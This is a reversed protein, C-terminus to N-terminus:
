KYKYINLLTAVLKIIQLHSTKEFHHIKVYGDM